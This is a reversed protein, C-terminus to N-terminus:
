TMQMHQLGKKISRVQVSPIVTKVKISGSNQHTVSSNNRKGFRGVKTKLKPSLFGKIQYSATQNAPNIRRNNDHAVNNNVADQHHSSITHLQQKSHENSSPSHSEYTFHPSATRRVENTTNDRPMM